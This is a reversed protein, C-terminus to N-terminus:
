CWGGDLVMWDATEDILDSMRGYADLSAWHGDDLCFDQQFQSVDAFLHGLVGRRKSTEYTPNSCSTQHVEKLSLIVVCVTPFNHERRINFGGDVGFTSM